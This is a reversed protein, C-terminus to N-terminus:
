VKQGTVKECVALLGEVERKTATASAQLKGYRLDSLDGVAQKIGELLKECEREEEEQERELEELAKDMEGLLEKVPLIGADVSAGFLEVGVM